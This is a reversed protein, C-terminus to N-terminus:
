HVPAQEQILSRYLADALLSDGAENFHGDHRWRTSIGNGNAKLLDEYVPVYVSNSRACFEQLATSISADDGFYRSGDAVILRTNNAAAERGLEELVKLNTM